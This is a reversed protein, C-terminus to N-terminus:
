SEGTLSDEEEEKRGKEKEGKGGGEAGAKDGGLILALSPPEAPVDKLWDYPNVKDNARRL